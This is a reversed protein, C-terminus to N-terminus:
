KTMGKLIESTPKGGLEIILQRTKEDRARDLVGEPVPAKSQPWATNLDGHAAALIKIMELNGKEAAVHLPMGIWRPQILGDKSGIIATQNPNAGKLLLLKATFVWNKLAAVHLMTCGSLCTSAPNADEHINEAILEDSGICNDVDGWVDAILRGAKEGDPFVEFLSDKGKRGLSLLNDIGKASGEIDDARIM